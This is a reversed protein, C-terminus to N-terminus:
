KKRTRLYEVAKLLQRDPANQAAAAGAVPRASEGSPTPDNAVVEDPTVGVNHISRGAPTYWLFSVLNLRSGDAFDIIDQGCGKGYTKEGILRAKRYDQLAGATIESASASNGNILVAAPVRALFGSMDKECKAIETAGDKKRQLVYPADPVLWQCAVFGAVHMFGGPNDRLDLVVGDLKKNIVDEIAKGFLPVTDKQFSKIQVLLYTRKGDVIPRMTVSPVQVTARVLTIEQPKGAGGRLVRLKVSTGEKGRLRGTCWVLDHNEVPQGDIAQIVDGAKLGAKAAPSGENAEVVTLIGVHRMSVSAGIGSLSGSEDQDELRVEEPTLFRSYRDNMAHVMGKIAGYYLAKDEPDTTIHKEGILEYVRRLVATDRFPPLTELPQARRPQSPQARKPPLVRFGPPAAAETPMPAMALLLAALFAVTPRM